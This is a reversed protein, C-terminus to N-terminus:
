INVSHIFNCMCVIQGYIWLVVLQLVESKLKRNKSYKLHILTELIHVFDFSFFFLSFFFFINNVEYRLAWKMVSILQWQPRWCHKQAVPLDYTLGNTSPMHWCAMKRSISPTHSRELCCRETNIVNMGGAICSNELSIQCVEPFLQGGPFRRGEHTSSFNQDLQHDTILCSWSQLKM